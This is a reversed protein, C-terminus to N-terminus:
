ALVGCSMQIVWSEVTGRAQGRGHGGRGSASSSAERAAEAAVSKRGNIAGNLLLREVACRNRSRMEAKNRRGHGIQALDIADQILRVM